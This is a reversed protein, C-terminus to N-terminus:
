LEYFIGERYETWREAIRVLIKAGSKRTWILTMSEM